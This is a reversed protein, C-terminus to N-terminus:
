RPYGSFDSVTRRPKSTGSLYNIAYACEALVDAIPMPFAYGASIGDISWSMKTKGDTLQAVASTQIAQVQALTLGIFIGKAM